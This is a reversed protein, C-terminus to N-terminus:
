MCAIGGLSLHIIGNAWRDVQYAIFGPNDFIKVIIHKNSKSGVVTLVVKVSTSIVGVTNVGNLLMM